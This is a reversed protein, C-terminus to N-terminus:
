SEGTDYHLNCKYCRGQYPSGLYEHVTIKIGPGFHFDEIKQLDIGIIKAPDGNPGLSYVLDRVKEFDGLKDKFLRIFGSSPLLFVTHWYKDTTTGLDTKNDVPRKKTRAM